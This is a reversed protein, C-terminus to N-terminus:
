LEFASPSLGLWPSMVRTGDGALSVLIPNIWVPTSWALFGLVWTYGIVREVGKGLRFGYEKKVMSYINSVVSEIGFGLIQLTYFQFGGTKHLPVGFGIDCLSHIIGSGTFAIVVRLWHAGTSKRPLGLLSALFTANSTLPTRLIQHWSKGWLGRLNGAERLSDFIPPWNVPEDGLAVAVTAAATHGGVIAARTVIAFSLTFLIQILLNHANFERLPLLVSKSTNLKSLAHQLHVDSADLTLLHIIAGAILLTLTSHLLFTPKSKSKGQVQPTPTSTSTTRLRPDEWPTNIRRYNYPLELAFRLKALLSPSQVRPTKDKKELKGNQYALQAELSARSLVLLDFANLVNVWCMAVLPGSPRTAAFYTQINRQLTYALVATLGAVLPRLRSDSATFTVSLGTLSQILNWCLVPTLWPPFM